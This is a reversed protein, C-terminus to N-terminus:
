FFPNNSMASNRFEFKFGFKESLDIINNKDKKDLKPPFIVKEILLSVDVNIFKGNEIEQKEWYSEGRSSVVEQIEHFLRFENEHQFEIRKHIFPRLINASRVPYDIKHYFVEKDYDIYRIKSAYIQEATNKLANEIRKPNSQIAIGIKDGLYKSWMADSENNNIHWCNVVMAMRLKRQLDSILNSNKKARELDFEKNFQIARIRSGEIRYEVEKKPLSGEFPDLFKDDRCFFLCKTEILSQFKEIDMYRWLVSNNEIPILYDHHKISM